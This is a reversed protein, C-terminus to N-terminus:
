CQTMNAITDKSHFIRHINHGILTYLTGISSECMLIVVPVFWGRM